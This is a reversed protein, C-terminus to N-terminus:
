TIVLWRSCMRRPIRARRRGPSAADVADLVDVRALRQELAHDLDAGDVEVGGAGVVAVEAEDADGVGILDNRPDFAGLAGRAPKRPLRAM